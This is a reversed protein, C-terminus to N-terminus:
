FIAINPPLYVFVCRIAEVWWRLNLVWELHSDKDRYIKFFILNRKFNNLPPVKLREELERKQKNANELQEKIVDLEAELPGRLKNKKTDALEKKLRKVEQRESTAEMHKQRAKEKEKQLEEKLSEIKAQLKKIEKEETTGRLSGGKEGSAIISNRKSPGSM